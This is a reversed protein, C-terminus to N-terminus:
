AIASWKPTQTATSKDEVAVPWTKTMPYPKMIKAIALQQEFPLPNSQACKQADRNMETLKDQKTM